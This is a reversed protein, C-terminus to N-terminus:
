DDKKRDISLLALLRLICVKPVSATEALTGRTNSQYGAIATDSTASPSATGRQDGVEYDFSDEARVGKCYM